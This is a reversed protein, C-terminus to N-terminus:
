AASPDPDEDLHQSVTATPKARFPIIAAQRQGSGSGQGQAMEEVAHFLRQAAEPQYAVREVRLVEKTGDRRSVVVSQGETRGLLALGRPTAISLTMGVIERDGDVVVTRTQSMTDDVRFDVRSDLTVVNPPFDQGFHVIAEALKGRIQRYITDNYGTAFALRSRLFSYDRVTLISPEVVSM